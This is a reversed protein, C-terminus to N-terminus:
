YAHRLWALDAEYLDVHGAAITAAFASDGASARKRSYAILHELRRVAWVVVDDPSVNGYADCFLALRRQQQAPDQELGDPHGPPTLTVWRYAAYGLDWLRPGPVAFDWDIFAVVRGDLCVVNYPAVDGHCIVEMPDVAPLRWGSRPLTLGTSADHVERLRAAVDALLTDSWVWDPMPYIGVDGEVFEVLEIDGDHGLPRPVCSLGCARLAQMFEQVQATWPGAPRRVANGHRSVKGM